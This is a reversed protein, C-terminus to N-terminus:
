LNIKTIKVRTYLQRHGARRRSNKRRRLAARYLKKGQTAGLVEATVSAGDVKPTGIQTEKDSGCALVQDFTLSDGPKADCLDIELEDGESVKLQHGDHAIIAYM